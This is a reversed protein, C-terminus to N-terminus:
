SPIEFWLFIRSLLALKSSNSTSLGCLAQVDLALRQPKVIGGRALPADIREVDVAAHEIKWWDDALEGALRTEETM